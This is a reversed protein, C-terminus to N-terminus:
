AFGSRVKAPFAKLAYDSQHIRVNHGLSRAREDGHRGIHLRKFVVGPVCCGLLIQCGRDVNRFYGRKQHRAETVLHIEVGNQIRDVTNEDRTGFRVNVRGKITDLWARCELGIVISAIGSRQREDPGGNFLTNRHQGDAAAYLFQVDRQAAREGGFDLVEFPPHIVARRFGFALGLTEGDLM